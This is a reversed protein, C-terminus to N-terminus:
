SCKGTTKTQTRGQGGSEIVVTDSGANFTLKRGVTEAGCDDTITVPTGTVVYTDTAATYTLRAGSTKRKQERLTLKGQDAYAEARDVENGSPLLYLEIRDASIDGQPGSLHADRTYTARRMAEEYKFEQATGVSRVSDTKKKEKDHQQLMATTTVSGTATIDGNKNDLVITQGVVTTDAQWLKANGKYVAKSEGGDYDLDDGVINVAQDSKLMSPTKTDSKQDKPKPQLVSQVAGSAKMKPGALTVDVHVADIAIQDNVIHPRPTIPDSGSLELTGKDLVYRAAAAVAGLKGEDFRVYKSFKAEDISSMGPRLSVQLAGAKATRGVGDDQEQFDV